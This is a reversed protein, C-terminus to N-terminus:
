ESLAYKILMASYKDGYTICTINALPIEYTKEDWKGLADFHSMSLVENDVKIVRGIYFEGEETEDEVIIVRSNEKFYSLVSLWNTIVIGELIDPIITPYEKNIIKQFLVETKSRKVKTIDSLRIIKYGDLYFDWIHQIQLLNNSIAIPVGDISFDKIKKRSISLYQKKTTYEKSKLMQKETM